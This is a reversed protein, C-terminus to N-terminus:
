VSVRAPRFRSSVSRAFQARSELAILRSTRVASQPEGHAPFVCEDQPQPRQEPAGADLVLEVCLQLKMQLLLHLLVHRSPAKRCHTAHTPHGTHQFTFCSPLHQHKLKHTALVEWDKTEHWGQSSKQPWVIVQSHAPMRDSDDALGHPSATKGGRRVHHT